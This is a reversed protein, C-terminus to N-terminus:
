MLARIRQRLQRLKKNQGNKAILDEVLNNANIINGRNMEQVALQYSQEDQASLIDTAKGGISTQITDKLATAASNNPNLSIAQDLLTVARKLSNENGNASNYLKRAQETLNQSRVKSSNDIPRQKIGLEYELNLILSM